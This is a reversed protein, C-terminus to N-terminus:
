DKPKKWWHMNVKRQNVHFCPNLLSEVMNTNCAQWELDPIRLRKQAVSGKPLRALGISEESYYKLICLIFYM